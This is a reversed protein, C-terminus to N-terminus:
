KQKTTAQISQTQLHQQKTSPPAPLKTKNLPIKPSALTQPAATPVLSHPTSSPKTKAPTPTHQTIPAATQKNNM